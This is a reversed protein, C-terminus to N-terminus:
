LFALLSESTTLLKRVPDLEQINEEAALAALEEPDADDTEMM